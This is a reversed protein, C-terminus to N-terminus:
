RTFARMLYRTIAARNLLGVLRGEGDVVPLRKLRHRYFLNCADQLTADDRVCIVKETALDTVREGLMEGVRESFGEDTRYAALYYGLDVGSDSSSLARMVDGDSLFGLVHRGADVVVVSGSEQEVLEELVERMTTEPAVTSPDRDMLVSVTAEGRGTQPRAMEIGHMHRAYPVSIVLGAAAIVAAVTVAQSFGRATALSAENSLPTTGATAGTLIGVFLSPGISAAVMLLVNVIAVGSAHLEPPLIRLGSTQSPSMVLGVGAYVVVSGAVVAVLALQGGFAAVAAQGAVILAFGAPLLPLEGSRDMIRGGVIATLANVVIPPLILLGAMLASLGFADEYYLPLLVSMSFTTMMAVMVLVCALLFRASGLPRVDLVPTELRKQRRVFWALAAIGVALALAAAPLDATLEGIGYVVLTLGLAALAVSLADCHAERTPAFSRVLRLGLLALVATFVLPFVFISRWGFLTVAIGSIVPSVAPGITIAASGISLYTGVRERPSCSLVTNMMLPIFLGSAVAQVLRGALLLAFSGAVLCVAEGAILCVSAAFFLARLSFREQLFAGIAIIVATVIMYGTVLWQALGADVSFEAAIPVLAVNMINENFASAFAALYLVVLMSTKVGNRLM